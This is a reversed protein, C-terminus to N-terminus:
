SNPTWAQRGQERALHWVVWLEVAAFSASTVWGGSAPNGIFLVAAAAVSAVHCSVAAALQARRDARMMAWAQAVYALAVAMQLWGPFLRYAASDSVTAVTWLRAPAACISMALAV